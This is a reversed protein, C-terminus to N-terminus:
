RREPVYENLPKRAGKSGVGKFFGRVIQKVWIGIFASAASHGSVDLLYFAVYRSGFLGFDIADGSLYLSPLVQFEIRIGALEAPSEPMLKRQVVRGASQDLELARLHRKLDSNLQHVQRVQDVGERANLAREIAGDFENLNAPTADSLDTIVFDIAGRRMAEVVQDASPSEAYVITPLPDVDNHDSAAISALASLHCLILSQESVLSEYGSQSAPSESVSPKPSSADISLSGLCRRAKYGADLLYACVKEARAKDEDVILLDPSVEFM